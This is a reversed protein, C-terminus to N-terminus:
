LVLQLTEAHNNLRWCLLEDSWVWGSQELKQIDNAGSDRYTPYGFYAGLANAMSRKLRDLDKQKNVAYKDLVADEIMTRQEDRNM